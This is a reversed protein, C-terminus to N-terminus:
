QQAPQSGLNAYTAAGGPLLGRRTLWGAMPGLTGMVRAAAPNRYIAGAYDPVSLLTGPHLMAM